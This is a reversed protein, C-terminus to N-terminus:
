QPVPLEFAKDLVAPSPLMKEHHFSQHHLSHSRLMQEENPSMQPAQAQQQTQNIPQEQGENGETATKKKKDKEMM